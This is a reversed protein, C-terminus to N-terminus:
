SPIHLVLQLLTQLLQSSSGQVQGKSGPIMAAMTMAAAHDWGGESEARLLWVTSVAALLLVRGLELLPAAAVGDLLGERPM